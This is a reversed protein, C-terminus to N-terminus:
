TSNDFYKNLKNLLSDNISVDAKFEPVVSVPKLEPMVYPKDNINSLQPPPSPMKDTNCNGADNKVQKKMNFFFLYWIVFIIVIAIFGILFWDINSKSIMQRKMGDNIVSADQSHKPYYMSMNPNQPQFQPQFQPQNQPQFQSQNQPPQVFVPKITNLDISVECNNNETSELVLFYPESDELTDHRVTGELIGQDVIKYDLPKGNNLISEKVVIAKFPKNELSVVKFTLEFTKHAENLEILTKFTNITYTRTNTM